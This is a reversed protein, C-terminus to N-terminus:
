YQKFYGTLTVRHCGHGASACEAGNPVRGSCVRVSKNKRSVLYELAAVPILRRNCGAINQLDKRETDPLLVATSPERAEAM